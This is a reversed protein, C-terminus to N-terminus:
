LQFINNLAGSVYFAVRKAGDACHFQLVVSADAIACAEGDMDFGHIIQGHIQKKPPVGIPQKRALGKEEGIRGLTQAAEKTVSRFFQKGVQVSQAPNRMVAEASLPVLRTEAIKRVLHPKRSKGNMLVKGYARGHVDWSGGYSRCHFFGLESKKVRYRFGHKTEYLGGDVLQIDM